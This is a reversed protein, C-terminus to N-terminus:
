QNNIFMFEFRDLIIKDIQEDTYSYLCANDETNETAQQCCGGGCLPAIRCIHCIERSFKASMRHCLYNDKWVVAGDTNLYGARRESIFDRATCKFVDGNYNVLLYNKKDGYCSDNVRNIVNHYSVRYGASTFRAINEKVVESVDENDSDQWVRQFDVTMNDRVNKELGNFEDAIKGTDAINDTTYNIRLQVKLGSAILRKINAVIRDYSGTKNASYRVQDHRDKYGDLTIQFTCNKNQLFAIIEDTLLYGNSTFHINYNINHEKCVKDFFTILPKAIDNFYMLPEGGFFSFSFVKLSPNKALIDNTLKKISEITEVQMKSGKVHDEYCYWCRFNCDVTPNIHLQFFSPDNDIADIKDKVLKAEDLNSEVVADAIVLKNYLSSNENRLNNPAVEEVNNKALKNLVVFKDSLANYLLYKEKNIPIVTNYQSYKM